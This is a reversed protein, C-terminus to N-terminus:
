SWLRAPTVGFAPTRDRYTSSRMLTAHNLAAAAAIGGLGLIALAASSPGFLRVMPVVSITLGFVWASYGPWRLTLARMIASSGVLAIFLAPRLSAVPQGLVVYHLGLLVTWVTLLMLVPWAVLLMNLQSARLPLVRLHRIMAPFRSVLTGAFLGYWIILDFVQGREQAIAGDFLLLSQMRLFGGYSAPSHMLAGSVFVVVGFTVVLFGGFLVSWVYEHVLLRPLGTLGEMRGARSTATKPHQRPAWLISRAAPGPTHFYAAITLALAAALMTGTVSSLDSWRTPLLNRIAYGWFLGGVLAVARIAGILVSVHRALGRAPHSRASVIVLGCGIGAYAFDYVSSLALSSFGLSGPTGPVLQALLKGATTLTVPGVTAVLWTARWRDRRSIPLYWIARETPMGAIILPGMMFAAGLSAAFAEPAGGVGDPHGSGSWFAAVGLTLLAAPWRCKRRVLDTILLRM